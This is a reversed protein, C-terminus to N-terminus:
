NKHHHHHHYSIAAFNQPPLPPTTTSTRHHNFLVHLHHYTINTFPPQMFPTITTNTYRHKQNNYSPLQDITTITPFTASFMSNPISTFITTPHPHSKITSTPAQSQFSSLSFTHHQNSLSKQRHYHIMATFLSQTRHKHNTTQTLLTSPSQILTNSTTTAPKLQTCSQQIIARITKM